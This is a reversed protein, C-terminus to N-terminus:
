LKKSTANIITDKKSDKPNLEMYFIDKTNLYKNAAQRIVKPSLSNYIDEYKDVKNLKDGYFYHSKLLSAWFSGKKKQEELAILRKKIFSNVYKKDVLNTKINEIEKRIYGVLEDKRKPDCTFSINISALEYPERMFSSKVSVGYVGSKEERILERLKTNLVDKVASLKIAEATSYKLEKKYRLSIASINENNYNRIFKHEGSKAKIGRFNFTEERKLTPFNGFYKTIKSKVEDKSIDGTIIFTFNNFDSFRDKYITIMRKKDLNKIDEKTYSIFRKNDDYLYSTLEKSFKRSPVRNTKKLNTLSIFKTNEFVNDDFRQKKTFLYIGELLYEFDKTIAVGSISESYRKISPKIRVNKDAYIKRFELINYKDVGSKTIINQAFKANTLDKTEYVSFGGRSFSNLSVTNKSYDNFKYVVKIGNELTFEYFDYKKNHKEKIIKISNLEKVSTIRNPLDKKITKEKINNKANILIKKIRKKSIETTDEIIYSILRSKSELISQYEKNVQKLTLTNLLKDKLQIKYKEDIFVKDQLEYAVVQDAYNSSTKNKLLKLSNKNSLKMSKIVRQFDKEDFGYENISYMLSTLEKLAKLDNHGTYSATFNYSRINTGLKGIRLGISRAAPNRKLLQESGKENFLKIAINKILFDKYDEETILPSHKKYFSISTSPKTLEKDKVILTRTSMNIPVERSVQKTHNKNKFNSFEKKILREVEKVDFDGSIVFHMLEPRYWTEYFDKVRKLSINKIINMDGIPTRDKYKSNAYYVDKAQLFMRFRINNRARAEEQVVGREKDLEEQTFDVRNAWDGFILMAKELNNDKLPVELKYLTRTTSTSANLHSGFAVGISELFKILENAKFNKTGNFAMHEVLHAVGKQDDDEELSGAKVLLRLSAKNKPKISKKITYEFGNDLTGTILTKEKELDKAMTINTCFAFLLITKIFFRM